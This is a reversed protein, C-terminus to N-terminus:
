SKVSEQCIPGASRRRQEVISVPHAPEVVVLRRVGEREGGRGLGDERDTGLEPLDISSAQSFEDCATADEVISGQELADFDQRAGGLPDEPTAGQLPLVRIKVWALPLILRREFRVCVVPLKSSDKRSAQRPIKARVFR